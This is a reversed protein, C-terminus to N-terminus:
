GGIWFCGTRRGRYNTYDEFRSRGDKGIILYTNAHLNRANVGDKTAALVENDNDRVTMGEHDIHTTTDGINNGDQDIKKVVLGTDTLEVGAGTDVKSVGIDLIYSDDEEKKFIIHNKGDGVAFQGESDMYVGPAINEVSSKIGSYLSKTEIKFGGITAGFAVLDDVAIKEAVISKKILVSGHIADEEVPTVGPMATFDTNLAYYNGDSGKVVLRDAKM